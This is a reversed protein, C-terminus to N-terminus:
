TSYPPRPRAGRRASVFTLVALGVYIVAGAVRLPRNEGSGVILWVNFVAMLVFFPVAAYMSRRMWVPLPRGDGWLRESASRRRDSMGPPDPDLQRPRVFGFYFTLFMSGGFFIVAGLGTLVVGWGPPEGSEASVFAATSAGFVIGAVAMIVLLQRTKGSPM